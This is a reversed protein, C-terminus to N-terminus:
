TNLCRKCNDKKMQEIDVPYGRCVSPRWEYITCKYIPKNRIKRLFPCRELEMGTIPSLWMDGFRGSGYDPFMGLYKLVHPAFVEWEQIQDEDVSGLGSGNSYKTCCEGCQQCPTIQKEILSM